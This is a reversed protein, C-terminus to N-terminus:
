GFLYGLHNRGAPLGDRRQSARRASAHPVPQRRLGNKGAGRIRASDSAGLQASPAAAAGRRHPRAAGTRPRVDRRFSSPDGATSRYVAGAPAGRLYRSASLGNVRKRACRAPLLGAPLEPLAGGTGPLPPAPLQGRIEAHLRDLEQAAADAQSGSLHDRRSVAEM